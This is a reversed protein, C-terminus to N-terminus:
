CKIHPVFTNHDIPGQQYFLQKTKMRFTAAYSGILVLHSNVTFKM